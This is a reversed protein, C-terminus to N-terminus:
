RVLLMAHITWLSTVAFKMYRAAPKSLHLQCATMNALTNADNPQKNLADLLDREAEEHRGMLM